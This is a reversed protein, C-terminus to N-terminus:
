HGGTTKHQPKEYWDAPVENSWRMMIEIREEDEIKKVPEHTDHDVITYVYDHGNNFYGQILTEAEEVTAISGDNVHNGRSNLICYM